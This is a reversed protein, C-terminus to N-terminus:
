SQDLNLASLLQDASIRDIRIKKQPNTSGAVISVDRRRVGLLDALFEIVAQNARGKEPPAAVAIKARGQWLGMYRTRSSGPVIKVPLIVGNKEITLDLM